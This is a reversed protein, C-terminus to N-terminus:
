GRKFGLVIVRYISSSNGKSIKVSVQVQGNDRDEQTASVTDIEHIVGNKDKNAREPNAIDHFTLSEKTIASALIQSRDVNAVLRPHMQDKFAESVAMAATMFGEVVFNRKVSSRDKKGTVEVIASGKDLDQAMVNTVEYVVDSAVSRNQSDKADNISLDSTLLSDPAKQSKEGNYVIRSSTLFNKDFDENILDENSKLGQVRTLNITFEKSEIPQPLNNIYNPNSVLVLRMELSPIDNDDKSNQLIQGSVFKYSVNLSNLFITPDLKVYEKFEQDSLKKLDSPLKEGKNQLIFNIRQDDIKANLERGINWLFRLTQTFSVISLSDNQGKRAEIAVTITGVVDNVNELKTINFTIDKDKEYVLERFSANNLLSPLTGLDSERLKINEIETIAREIAQKNTLRESAFGPIEFDYTRSNGFSTRLEVVGKVIGSVDANADNKIQIVRIQIDNSVNNNQLTTPLFTFDDARVESPKVQTIEKREHHVFDPLLRSRIIENIRLNANQFESVYSSDYHRYLRFKGSTDGVKTIKILFSISGTRDDAEFSVHQNNEKVDDVIEFNFSSNQASLSYVSKLEDLLTHATNAANNTAHRQEILKKFNSPTFSSRNAYSNNFSIRLSSNQRQSINNAVQLLEFDLDSLFGDLRLALETSTGNEVTFYVKVDIVVTDSSTQNGKNPIDVKIIENKLDRLADLKDVTWFAKEEDTLTTNSQLILKEFTEKIRNGFDNILVAPEKSKFESASFNERFFKLNDVWSSQLEGHQRGIKEIISDLYAAKKQFGEFTKTVIASIKSNSQLSVKVNLSLSGNENDVQNISDVEFVVNHSTGDVEIQGESQLLGFNEKKLLSPLINEDARQELNDSSNKRFGLRIQSSEQQFHNLLSVSLHDTLNSIVKTYTGSYTNTQENSSTEDRSVSIELTLINKEIDRNVIKINYKEGFQAKPALFDEESINRISKNLPVNSSPQSNINFLIEPKQSVITDVATKADVKFGSLIGSFVEKVEKDGEVERFTKSVSYEVLVSDIGHPKWSLIETRFTPNSFNTRSFLNFNSLSINPNTNTIQKINAVLRTPAFDIRFESRQHFDNIENKYEAEKEPSITIDAQKKTVFYAGVSTIAIVPVALVALSSLLIVRSKKM